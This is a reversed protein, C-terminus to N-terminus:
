GARSRPIEARASKGRAAREGPTFHPVVKPKSPPTRDTPPSEEVKHGVEVAGVAVPAEAPEEDPRGESLQGREAVSDSALSGPDRRENSESDDMM